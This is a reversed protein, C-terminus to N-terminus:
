LENFSIKLLNKNTKLITQLNKLAMELSPSFYAQIVIEQHHRINDLWFNTVNMLYYNIEPTIQWKDLIFETLARTLGEYLWRRSNNFHFISNSHLTEHLFTQLDEENGDVIYITDTNPHYFGRLVELPIISSKIIQKLEQKSIDLIKIRRIKLNLTDEILQIARKYTAESTPDKRM